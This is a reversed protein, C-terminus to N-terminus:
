PIIQQLLLRVLEAQRRTGTKDFIRSLHSRATAVSIGLRDAAAQRGDGKVIELALAAEARSLGFRTRLRDLRALLADEPDIILVIAVPRQPLIWPMADIAAQGGLPAVLVNLSPRRGDRHVALEGGPGSVIDSMSACSAILKRLTRGADADLASLVGADLRVGDGADLLGAAKRNAFLVRATADVLLVGQPLRDLGAFAMEREVALHHLRRQLAVVRVAHRMLAAFLRKEDSGFPARNPPKYSSLVASASGDVLLNTSLPDTNFGAPRWWEQYFTTATFAELPMFDTPVFVKGPPVRGSRQWLPNYPAWVEVYSRVFEPDTRPSIARALGTEPDYIGFAVMPGGVADGISNLLDPWLSEDLAADYLREVLSLTLDGPM